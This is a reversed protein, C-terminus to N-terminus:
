GYTERGADLLLFAVVLRTHRWFLPGCRFPMDVLHLILAEGKAVTLTHAVSPGGFHGRTMIRGVDRVVAGGEPDPSAAREMM